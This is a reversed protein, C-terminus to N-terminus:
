SERWRRMYNELDEEFTPGRKIGRVMSLLAHNTNDLMEANANLKWSLRKAFLEDISDRMINWAVICNANQSIRHIRKEAQEITPPSWDLDHIVGFRARTLTVGEALTAFTAVLVGGREQFYKVMLDRTTQTSEGNCVWVIQGATRGLREGIKNAAAVSWTFVVASERATILEQVYEVTTDVKALSTQMRLENIVRLVENSFKGELLGKAVQAYNKKLADTHKRQTQVGLRADDWTSEIVTRSLDPLVFGQDRLGDVTRRLYWPKIREKLEDTNTPYSPVYGHGNFMAGAYRQIFDRPSGWSGRGTIMTMLSWLDQPKDPMPTGTAFLVHPATSLMQAGISRNSRADKYHHAEDVLSMAPKEMLIRPWWARVIEPNVFYWSANKRFSDNDINRSELVCIEEEPVGCILLERIWTARLYKKALMVAPRRNDYHERVAQAVTIGVRTKGLGPEDALLSRAGNELIKTVAEQQHKFLRPENEEHVATCSAHSIASGPSWKVKETLGCADVLKVVAETTAATKPINVGAPFVKVGAVLKIEGLWHQVARSHVINEPWNVWM